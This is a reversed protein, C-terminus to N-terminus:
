GLSTLVEVALFFFNCWFYGAWFLNGKVGIKVLVFVPGSRLGSLNLWFYSFGDAVGYIEDFFIKNWGPMPGEVM